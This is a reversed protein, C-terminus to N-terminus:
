HCDGGTNMILNILLRVDFIKNRGGTSMTYFLVFVPM